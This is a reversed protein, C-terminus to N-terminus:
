NEMTGVRKGVFLCVLMRFVNRRQFKLCGIGWKWSSEEAVRYVTMKSVACVFGVATMSCLEVMWTISTILRSSFSKLLILLFSDKCPPLVFLCFLLKEILLWASYAEPFLLNLLWNIFLKGGSLVNSIVCLQWMCLGLTLLLWTAEWMCSLAATLEGQRGMCIGDRLPLGQEGLTLPVHVSDDWSVPALFLEVAAAHGCVATCPPAISPAVCIFCLLTEQTPASKECSLLSCIKKEKPSNISERTVEKINGYGLKCHDFFRICGCRHQCLGKQRGWVGLNQVRLMVWVPGSGASCMSLNWGTLFNM